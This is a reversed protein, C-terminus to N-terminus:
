VLPRGNADCERGDPTFYTVTPIGNVDNPAQAPAAAPRLKIKEAIAKMRDRDAQIRAAEAADIKVYEEDTKALPWRDCKAGAPDDVNVSQLYGILFDALSAYEYMAILQSVTSEANGWCAHGDAFVHPANMGNQYGPITQTLNRFTVSGRNQDIDIQMKGLEHRKNSRPDVFFLRKTRISFINGRFKISEISSNRCLADFEGGYKTADVKTVTLLSEYQKRAMEFQRIADTLQERCSKVTNQRNQFNDQYNKKTAEIRSQCVEMYKARHQELPPEVPGGTILLNIGEECIKQLIQLEETQGYHCLDPYIYLNHADISGIEDGETTMIPIGTQSVTFSGCDRCPLGIGWARNNRMFVRDTDRDTHHPSSRVHVTFGTTAQPNARGHPVCLTVDMGLREALQTQLMNIWSQKANSAGDWQAVRVTPPPPLESELPGQAPIIPAVLSAAAVGAIATAFITDFFNTEAPVAPAEAAPAAPAPTTGTSVLEAHLIGEFPSARHRVVQFGNSTLLTMGAEDILNVSNRGFMETAHIVIGLRDLTDRPVTEVNVGYMTATEEPMTHDELYQRAFSHSDDVAMLRIPHPGPTVFYQRPMILRRQLEEWQAMVRSEVELMNVSQILPRPADNTILMANM